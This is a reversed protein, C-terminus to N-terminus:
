RAPMRSRSASRCYRANNGWSRNWVNMGNDYGRGQDGWSQAFADMPVALMCGLFAMLTLASVLKRYTM